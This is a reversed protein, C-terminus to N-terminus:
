TLVLPIHYEESICLGIESILLKFRYVKRLQFRQSEVNLDMFFSDIRRSIIFGIVSIVIAIISLIDSVQM